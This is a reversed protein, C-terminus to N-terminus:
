ISRAFSTEVDENDKDELSPEWGSNEATPKCEKEEDDTLSDNLDYENLKDDDNNDSDNEV